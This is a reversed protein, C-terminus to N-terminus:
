QNGKLLEILAYERIESLYICNDPYKYIKWYYVVTQLDCIAVDNQISFNICEKEKCFESYDMIKGNTNKRYPM